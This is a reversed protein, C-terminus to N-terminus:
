AAQFKFFTVDHKISVFHRETSRISSHGMHEWSSASRNQRKETGRKVAARYKGLVTYPTCTSGPYTSAQPSLGDFLYACCQDPDCTDIPILVAARSTNKQGHQHGTHLQPMHASRAMNTAM